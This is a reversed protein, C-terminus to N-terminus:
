KDVVCRVMVVDMLYGSCIGKINVHDGKSFNKVEEDSEKAFSCMVSAVSRGDNLFVIASTDTAQVNDILGEVSITKDSYHRTAKQEDSEFQRILEAANIKFDPKLSNTDPLGRNYENYAYGAVICIIPFAIFIIVRYKASSKKM